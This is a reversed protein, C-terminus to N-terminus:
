FSLFFFFFFIPVVAGLPAGCVEGGFWVKHFLRHLAEEDARSGIYGLGLVLLGMEIDEQEGDWGRLASPTSPGSQTNERGLGRGM